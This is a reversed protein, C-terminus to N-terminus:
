EEESGSFLISLMGTSAAMPNEGWDVINEVPKMQYDSEALKKAIANTVEYVMRFKAKVDYQIEIKLIGHPIDLYLPHLFNLSADFQPSSWVIIKYPLNASPYSSAQKGKKYTYITKICQYGIVPERNPSQQIAYNEPKVEEKQWVKKIEEASFTIGFSNTEDKSFATMMGKKEAMNMFSELRYNLAVAKALVKEKSYYIKAYYPTMMASLMMTGATAKEEETLGELLSQYNGEQLKLDKQTEKSQGAGSENLALKSFYDGLPTGPFSVRTALIGEEFRSGQSYVPSCCLFFSFGFLLFAISTISFRTKM